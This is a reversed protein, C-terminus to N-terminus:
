RMHEFKTIIFMNLYLTSFRNLPILFVYHEAAWRMAQQRLLSILSPYPNPPLHGKNLLTTLFNHWTEDLHTDIAYQFIM